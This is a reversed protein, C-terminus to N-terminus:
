ARWRRPASARTSRTSAPWSGARAPRGGVTRAARGPPRSLRTRRPAGGEGSGGNTGTDGAEPPTLWDPEASVPALLPVVTLAGHSVSEGIRIADLLERLATIEDVTPM